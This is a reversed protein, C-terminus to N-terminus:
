SQKKWLSLGKELKKYILAMLLYCGNSVVACFIAKVFFGIWTTGNCFGTITKTIGITFFVSILGIMQYAAEYLLSKEFYKYLRYPVYWYVTILNSIATAVLIGLLGWIKGLVVSLVINLIGRIMVVKDFKHFLGVSKRYAGGVQKMSEMYLNLTVVMVIESSLISVEGIWLKVFDQILLYYCSVSFGTLWITILSVKWFNKFFEEKTKAVALSGIKSIISEFFSGILGLVGSSVFYYNSYCGTTVTNIISSILVSDTNHILISGAKCSLLDKINVHIERKEDASLEDSVQKAFVDKFNKKLYTFIAFSIVVNKLLLCWLFNEYRATANVVFIELILAIIEFVGSILCVMYRKHFAILVYHLLIYRNYVLMSVLYLLYAVIVRENFVTEDVVVPLAVTLIIGTVFSVAAFKRYIKNYYALIKQVQLSNKEEIPRFLSYLVGVGMGGFALMLLDCINSFVAQIGMFEVGLKKQILNKSVLNIILIFIQYAVGTIINLKLELDKNEKM